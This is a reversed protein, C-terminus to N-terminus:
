AEQLLLFGIEDEDTILHYNELLVNIHEKWYTIYDPDAEGCRRMEAQVMKTGASAGAIRTWGTDPGSYKRVDYVYYTSSNNNLRWFQGAEIKM